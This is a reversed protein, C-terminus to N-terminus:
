MNLCNLDSYMCVYQVTLTYTCFYVYDKRYFNKQIACIFFTNLQGYLILTVQCQRRQSPCKGLFTRLAQGQGLSCEPYFVWM